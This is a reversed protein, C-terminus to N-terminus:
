TISPSKDTKTGYITNESQKKHQEFLDASCSSFSRFFCDFRNASCMSTEPLMDTGFLCCSYINGHMRRVQGLM